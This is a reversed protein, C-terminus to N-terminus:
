DAVCEFFLWVTRFLIINLASINITEL